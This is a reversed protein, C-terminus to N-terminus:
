VLVDFVFIRQFIEFFPPNGVHHQTEATRRVIKFAEIAYQPTSYHPAIMMGVM